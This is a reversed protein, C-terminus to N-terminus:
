QNKPQLLSNPALKKYQSTNILLPKVFLLNGQLSCHVLTEDLDLVLTFEPSSRTKLPLAPNRALMERTLPPLKKIFLYPDFTEWHENQSPSAYAGTNGNGDDDAYTAETSCSSSSPNQQVNHVFGVSNTNMRDSEHSEDEDLNEEEAFQNGYDDLDKQSSLYSHKGHAAFSTSMETNSTANDRVFRTTEDQNSVTNPYSEHPIASEQSVAIMDNTSVSSLAQITNLMVKEVIDSGYSENENISNELSELENLENEKNTFEISDDKEEDSDTSEIVTRAQHRRKKPRKSLQPSIYKKRKAPPQLCSTPRADSDQCKRRKGQIVHNTVQQTPLSVLSKSQSNSSGPCKRRGRKCSSIHNIRSMSTTSGGVTKLSTLGKKM